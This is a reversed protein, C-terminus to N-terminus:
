TLAKVALSSEFGTHLILLDNVIDPLSFITTRTPGKLASLSQLGAFM